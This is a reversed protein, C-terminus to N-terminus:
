VVSIITQQNKDQLFKQKRFSVKLYVGLILEFQFFEWWLREAKSISLQRSCMELM